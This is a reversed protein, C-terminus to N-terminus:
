QACYTRQRREVWRLGCGRGVRRFYQLGTGECVQQLRNRIGHFLQLSDFFGSARWFDSHSLEKYLVMMMVMVVMVAIIPSSRPNNNGWTIPVPPIVMVVMVVVMVVAIIPAIAVVISSVAAPSFARGSM